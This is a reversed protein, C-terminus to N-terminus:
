ISLLKILDSTIISLLTKGEIVIQPINKILSFDEEAVVNISELQKLLKVDDKYKEIYYEKFKNTYENLDVNNNRNYKVLKLDTDQDEIIIYWLKKPNVKINELFKLANVAKTNKPFKAVRGTLEGNNKNNNNNNEM